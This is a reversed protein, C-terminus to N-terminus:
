ELNNANNNLKNEDLHNVVNCGEPKNCFALAVLRHVSEYTKKGNKYLTMREYGYRDLNSKM